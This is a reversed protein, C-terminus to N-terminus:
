KEDPTRVKEGAGDRKKRGRQGEGGRERERQQREAQMGRALKPMYGKHVHRRTGTHINTQPRNDKRMGRCYMEARGDSGGHSAMTPAQACTRGSQTRSCRKSIFMAVCVYM